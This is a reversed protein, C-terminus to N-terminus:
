AGRLSRRRMGTRDARAAHPPVPRWDRRCTGSFPSCSTSRSRRPAIEITPASAIAAAIRSRTLRARAHKQQKGRAQLEDGRQETREARARNGHGGIRGRARSAISHGGPETPHDGVGSDLEDEVVVATLAFASANDARTGSSRDRSHSVTSSTSSEAGSGARRPRRWRPRCRPEQLVRRSRGRRRAAHHHRVGVEEVVEGCVARSPSCSALEIETEHSGTFWSM